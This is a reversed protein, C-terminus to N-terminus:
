RLTERNLIRWIITTSQGPHHAIVRFCATLREHPDQVQAIYTHGLRVETRAISTLSDPLAIDANSLGFREPDALHLAGSDWSLALYASANSDVAKAPGLSKISADSDAIPGAVLYDEGGSAISLHAKTARAEGDQVMTGYEGTTLDVLRRQEDHVYLTIPAASAGLELRSVGSTTAAREGCGALAAALLVVAIIRTM